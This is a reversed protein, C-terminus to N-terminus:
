TSVMEFYQQWSSIFSAEQEVAATAQRYLHVPLFRATPLQNRLTCEQWSRRPTGPLHASPLFNVLEPLSGGNKTRTFTKLHIKWRLHLLAWPIPDLNLGKTRCFVTYCRKLQVLGSQRCFKLRGTQLSLQTRVWKRMLSYVNRTKGSWSRSLNWSVSLIFSSTEHPTVHIIQLGLEVLLWCLFLIRALACVSSYGLIGVCLLGNRLFGGGWYSSWPRGFYSYWRCIFHEFVTPTPTPTSCKMAWNEACNLAEHERGLGRGCLWVGLGSCKFTGEQFGLFYYNHVHM